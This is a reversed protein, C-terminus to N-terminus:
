RVAEHIAAAIADAGVNALEAVAGWATWRGLRRHQQEFACLHVLRGTRESDALVRWCYGCRAGAPPTAPEPEPKVTMAFVQAEARKYAHIAAIQERAADDMGKAELAEFPVRKGGAFVVERTTQDLRASAAPWPFSM